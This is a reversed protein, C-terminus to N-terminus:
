VLNKSACPPTYQTLSLDFYKSDNNCKINANHYPNYDSICTVGGLAVTQPSILQTDSLCNTNSSGYMLLELILDTSSTTLQATVHGYTGEYLNGYFRLNSYMAIVKNNIYVRDLNFPTTTPVFAALPVQIVNQIMFNFMHPFLATNSSRYISLSFHTWVGLYSKINTNSYAVVGGIVLVIAKTSDSYGLFTTTGLFYMIPYPPTSGVASTVGFLKLWFTITLPNQTAIDFVIPTTMATLLNITAVTSISGPTKLYNGTALNCTTGYLAYGGNCEYCNTSATSYCRTCSTDCAKTNYNTGTTGIIYNGPTIQGIDYNISYNLRNDSDYKNAFYWWVTQLYNAAPNVTELVKDDSITDIRLTWYYYLSKPLESYSYTFSQIMYLSAQTDDWVRINKYWATGWIPTYVSGGINCTAHPKNCFGIGKLSMDYIATSLGTLSVDPNLFNYNMYIYINYTNTASDVQTYLIIRNWEYATISAITYLLSGASINVNGYKFKQDTSDKIIFHPPALLYYNNSTISGPGNM